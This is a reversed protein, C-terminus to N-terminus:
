SPLSRCSGLHPSRFSLTSTWALLAGSRGKGNTIWKKAGNVIYHKGDETLTATTKIHAVDSGAWPETIALCIFKEGNLVDTVVKKKLYDSGTHLIPPLGIALGGIFGWVVGASGAKALEEQIITSHFADWEQPKIGVPPPYPSLECWPKGAMSTLWQAKAAKRYLEKPISYAEDWDGAFPTVERQVFERIYARLRRHSDKYYPSAFGQM